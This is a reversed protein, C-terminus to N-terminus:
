VTEARVQHDLAQFAVGMEPRQRKQRENSNTASTITPELLATFRVSPRSPSAIPQVTIAAPASATKVYTLPCAVKAQTDPIAACAALRRTSWRRRPLPRTM